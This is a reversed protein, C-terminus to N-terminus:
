YQFVGTFEVSVPRWGISLWACATRDRTISERSILLSLTPYNSICRCLYLVGIRYRPAQTPCSPAGEFDLIANRVSYCFWNNARRVMGDKQSPLDQAIIVALLCISGLRIFEQGMLFDRPLCSRCADEEVSAVHNDRDPKM